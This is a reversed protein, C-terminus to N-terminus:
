AKERVEELLGKRRLLCYDGWKLAKGWGPLPLNLARQLRPSNEADLFPHCSVREWEDSVAYRPELPSLSSDPRHPFDVDILYSCSSPDVQLRRTRESADADMYLRPFVLCFTL